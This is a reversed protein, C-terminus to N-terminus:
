AVSPIAVDQQLTTVRRLVDAEGGGAHFHPREGDAPEEVAIEGLEQPDVQRFLFDDISDTNTRGVRDGGVPHITAVQPGEEAASRGPAPVWCTRCSSGCFPSAVLVRLM